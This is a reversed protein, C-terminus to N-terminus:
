ISTHEGVSSLTSSKQLLHRHRHCYSPVELQLNSKHHGAVPLRHLPQFVQLHGVIAAARVVSKMVLAHEKM